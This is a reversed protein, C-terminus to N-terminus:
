TLCHLTPKNPGWHIALKPKCMGKSCSEIDNITVQIASKESTNDGFYGYWVTDIDRGPETVKVWNKEKLCKYITDRQQTTVGPFDATVM